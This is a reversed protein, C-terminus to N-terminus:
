FTLDLSVGGGRPVLLPSVHVTTGRTAQERLRAGRSLSDIGLAVTTLGAIVLVSGGLTRADHAANSEDSVEGPAGRGVIMLAIGGLVAASGVSVEIAGATTASRAQASVLDPDTGGEGGHAATLLLVAIM